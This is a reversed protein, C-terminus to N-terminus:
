RPVRLLLPPLTEITWAVPRLVASGSPTALVATPTATAAVGKSDRDRSRGGTSTPLPLAVTVVTGEGEASVLSLTGGHEEIITKTIVLGLGSGQIALDTALSSRFFPTFLRNQEDEPIGIGTDSITFIVNDHTREARLTVVGDPPTFKISNTAVNLLARELHATDVDLVGLNPCVDFRLEVAASQATPRVLEEISGVLAHLDTAVPRLKMGTAEIHSLTLIDEILRLLRRGNRDMIAVSKAQDDALEGYDGDALLELQGLVNTLPTRLEHSTTAVFDSKLRDLAELDHIQSVIRDSMENLADAVAHFERDGTVEVHHQLGDTRLSQLGFVLQELPRYTALRLRRATWATLLLATALAFVLARQNRRARDIDAKLAVRLNEHTSADLAYLEGIAATIPQHLGDLRSPSPEGAPEILWVALTARIVLWHQHARIALDREAADDFATAETFGLDIAAMVAVIERRGARDDFDALDVLVAVRRLHAQLDAIVEGEAAIATSISSAQEVSRHLNQWALVGVTVCPTLVMLLGLRLRLAFSRQHQARIPM